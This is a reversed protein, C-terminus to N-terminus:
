QTRPSSNGSIEFCRVDENDIVVFNWSYYNRKKSKKDQIYNLPREFRGSERLWCCVDFPLLVAVATFLSHKCGVTVIDSHLVIKLNCADPIVHFISSTRKKKNLKNLKNIRM